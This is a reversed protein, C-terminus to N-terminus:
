IDEFIILIPSIKMLKLINRPAVYVKLYIVFLDYAGKVKFHQFREQTISTIFVYLSVDALALAIDSRM